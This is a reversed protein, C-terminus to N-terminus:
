TSYRLCINWNRSSTEGRMWSAESNWKLVSSAEQSCCKSNGHGRHTLVKMLMELLAQKQQSELCKVADCSCKLCLCSKKNFLYIMKTVRLVLRAKPSTESQFRVGHTTVTTAEDLESCDAMVKYFCEQQCNRQVGKTLESEHTWTM